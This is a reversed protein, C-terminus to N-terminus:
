TRIITARRYKSCPYEQKQAIGNHGVRTKCMCRYSISKFWPGFIFYCLM